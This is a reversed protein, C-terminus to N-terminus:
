WGCWEGRMLESLDVYRSLYALDGSDLRVGLPRYGLDFLAWAVCLFNPVGSRFFINHSFIIVFSLYFVM